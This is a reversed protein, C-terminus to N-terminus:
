ILYSGTAARSQWGGTGERFTAPPGPKYCFLAVGTSATGDDSRGEKRRCQTHSSASGSGGMPWAQIKELHHSEAPFTM